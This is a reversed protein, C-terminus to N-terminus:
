VERKTPLTMHTYSVAHLHLLSAGCDLIAKANEALEAPSLPIGAHDAKGRRAGNPASMVIFPKGEDTM